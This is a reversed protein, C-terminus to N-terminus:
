RESEKFVSCRCAGGEPHAMEYWLDRNPPAERLGELTSFICRVLVECARDRGICGRSSVVM